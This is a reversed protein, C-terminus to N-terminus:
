LRTAASRGSNRMVVQLHEEDGEGFIELPFHAEFEGLRFPANNLVLTASTVAFAPKLVLRGAQLHDAFALVRFRHICELLIADIYQRTNKLYDADYRIRRRNNAFASKKRSSSQSFARRARWAGSSSSAGHVDSDARTGFSRKWGPLKHNDHAPHARHPQYPLVPM